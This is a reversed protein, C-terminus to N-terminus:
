VCNRLKFHFKINRFEQWMIQVERTGDHSAETSVIWTKISKNNLCLKAAQFSVKATWIKKECNENAHWERQFCKLHEWTVKYQHHVWPYSNPISEHIIPPYHTHFLKWPHLIPPYLQGMLPYPYPKSAWHLVRCQMYCIALAVIKLHCFIWM